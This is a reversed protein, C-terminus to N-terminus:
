GADCVLNKLDINHGIYTTGKYYGQNDKGFDCTLSEFTALNANPVTLNNFYIHKSDKSYYSRTCGGSFCKWLIEFTKQDAGLIPESGFYVTKGDTGYVHQGSRNEIPQFTAPVAGSLLRGEYYVNRVDRAYLYSIYGHVGAHMDSLSGKLIELTVPDASILKREYYAHADDTTYKSALNGYSDLGGLARM